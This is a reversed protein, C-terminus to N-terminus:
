RGDSKTDIVMASEWALKEQLTMQFFEPRKTAGNDM